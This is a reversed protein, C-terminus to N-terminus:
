LDCRLLRKSSPFGELTLRLWPERELEQPPRTTTTVIYQFRPREDIDELRRVLEFLGHYQPLGLDAERPSDHVLFEPTAAHGEISLALTALDFAIIKLSEIAVTSCDGGLYVTLALSTAGLTARGKAQDGLFERIIADFKETVRAIVTMQKDRFAAASERLNEVDSELSRLSSVVTEHREILKAYASTEDVLRRAAYWVAERADRTTELTRLRTEHRELEQRALALESLLVGKEDNLGSLKSSEAELEQRNRERRQRVSELDPLKHSLRCGEALARDIPVECVPCAPNEADHQSYSLGPVESRIRAIMRQTEPIAADIAAQRELATTLRVQAEDRLRRIVNIDNPAAANQLGSATALKAEAAQALPAVSMQGPVISDEPVALEAALRTRAQETQWALHDREQEVSRRRAELEAIRSRCAQEDPALAQLFVRLADLLDTKGLGRAPSASDSTPSRWELVHNFRCEQDRTLWALAILWADHRNKRGPILAAVEDPFIAATVADLFPEIGDSEGGNALADELVVDPVAIHRRRPAFPRIVSWPRGDIVVEAGVMGEPFAEAIRYRQDESSFRPEGLCYRLLRCFLTKGGGHGMAERTSGARETGDPSWVINLGPRLPIDRIPKLNPDSWIVLRRIWLRPEQRGKAPTVRLSSQGILDPQRPM